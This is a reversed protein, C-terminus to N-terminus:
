GNVRESIVRCEFATDLDDWAKLLEGSRPDPKAMALRRLAMLADRYGLVYDHKMPRSTFNCLAQHIRQLGHMSFAAGVELTEFKHAHGHFLTLDNCVSQADKAESYVGDFAAGDNMKIVFGM